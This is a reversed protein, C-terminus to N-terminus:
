SCRDHASSLLLTRDWAPEASTSAAALAMAVGAAGSLFTPDTEFTQSGDLNKLATTFGALGTGPRRLQLTKEFWFTAATRLEGNGTAQGIRNFIHGLGAAGHCLSPDVVGSDEVPRRAAHIALDVAEREWDPEGAGRAALLLASAVGPDGYCWACRGQRGPVGTGTWYRFRSAEPEKESLLWEV